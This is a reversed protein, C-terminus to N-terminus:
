NKKWKTHDSFALHSDNRGRFFCIPPRRLLGEVGM